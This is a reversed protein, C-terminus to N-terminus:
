FASSGATRVMSAQTLNLELFRWENHRVPHGHQLRQRQAQESNSM